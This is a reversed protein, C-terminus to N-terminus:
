KKRTAWIPFKKAHESSFYGNDFYTEDPIVLGGHMIKELMSSMSQDHRHAENFETYVDTFLKADDEVITSFNQVLSKSFPTKRVVMIGGLIQPSDLCINMLGDNINYKKKFYDITKKNTFDREMLHKLHFRLMGNRQNNVMDIYEKFRRTSDQTVNLDCGSDIYVFIDDENLSDLTKQMIYPRWIWYGGGRKSMSWVEKHREKFDEQIDDETFCIFEDFFGSDNAQKTIIEKRREFDRSAYSIGIIKQTM